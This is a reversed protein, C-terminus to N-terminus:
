PTTPAYNPDPNLKQAEKIAAQEKEWDIKKQAEIAIEASVISVQELFAQHDAETKDKNAKFADWQDKLGAYFSPLETIKEDLKGTSNLYEIVGSGDKWQIANIEDPVESFDLGIFFEGDIGVSNDGNLITIKM